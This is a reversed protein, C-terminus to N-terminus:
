FAQGVAFYFQPKGGESVPVSADFRLVGLRTGFRLGLGAGMAADKLRVAGAREYARGADVFLAGRLAGFVPFRFEARALVVAQGGGPEGGADLPGLSNRPFGRVSGEGGALFRENVPVESADGFPEMVGVRLAVAVVRDRRLAKYGRVDFEARLFDNTGGLRSSAVDLEGRAYTGRSASLVDDRSDFVAALLVDSTYNTGLDVSEDIAELVVAREFRYAAELTLSLGMKKSLVFDAGSTEAVYSEEDAWRYRASAEAAVRRGLFWPDGVSATVDRSLESYRGRLGVTTGQGQVNRNFIGAGLEVGEIAAYAATIDYEGSAREGVRVVVRKEVRGTDAPAPEIWVSNFLGTRYLNAQSEGIRGFDFHEGPAFTLEREIVFRRTKDNGKVDVSAIVARSRETIRYSVSATRGVDDRTVEQVVRADLYSRRAYEDLIARRDHELEGAVFPGGERLTVLARLEEETVAAAGEFSVREVTWRDGERVGVLIRVRTSDENAAIDELEVDADLFGQSVYFREVNALDDLFRRRDYRSKRFFGSPRTRMYQLLAEGDFAANGVFRVDEVELGLQARRALADRLLGARGAARAPPVCTVVALVCLLAVSLARARSSRSLCSSDSRM